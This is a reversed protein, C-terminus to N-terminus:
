KVRKSIKKINSEVPENSREWEQDGKFEALAQKLDWENSNLYFLAEEPKCKTFLIFRRMLRTERHEKTEESVGKRRSVKTRIKLTRRSFIDNSFLNNFSKIEDITTGYFLALGALTDDLEVTHEVVSYGEGDQYERSEKRSKNEAFKQESAASKENKEVCRKESIQRSNSSFLEPFDILVGENSMKREEEVEAYSPPSEFKSLILSTNFDEEHVELKCGPANREAQKCCTWSALSGLARVSAYYRGSHYCCANPGNNKERYYGGCKLCRKPSNEDVLPRGREFLSAVSFQSAVQAGNIHSLKAPNSQLTPAPEKPANEAFSILNQSNSIQANQAPLFNTQHQTQRPVQPMYNHPNHPQLNNYGSQLPILFVPQLNQYLPFPHLNQMPVMQQQQSLPFPQSPQFFPNQAMLQIPQLPQMPFPQVSNHALPPASPQPSIFM